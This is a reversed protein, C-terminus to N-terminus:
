FWWLVWSYLPYHSVWSVITGVSLGMAADIRILVADILPARMALGALAVVGVMVLCWSTAAIAGALAAVRPEPRSKTYVIQIGLL